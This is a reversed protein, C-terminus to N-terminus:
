TECVRLANRSKFYCRWTMEFVSCKVIMDLLEEAIIVLEKDEVDRGSVRESRRFGRWFILCRRRMGYVSLSLDRDLNPFPFSMLDHDHLDSTLLFLEMQSRLRVFVQEFRAHPCLIRSDTHM